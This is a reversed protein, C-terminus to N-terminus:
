EPDSQLSLPLGEATINQVPLVNWDFVSLAEQLDLPEEKKIFGCLYMIHGIIEERTYKSRLVGMDLDKNRKSLRRGDASVLHPVHYFQPVTFGLSEYLFKQQHTSSLLDCGRVVETVGMLADDTVVALQYSFAGDARRVIFDGSDRQLNQTQNGYHGDFFSDTRDPVHIRKSPKRSKSFEVKEEATLGYCTGAYVPVGDDTHPASSALLDARRCFCDYVLNMKELRSFEKEYFSDRESQFYPGEDWNLGLWKLDDMLIESYEKKCRQRDLDEIRLIWEGNKKRVSMWSMLCAYINGLHMRGSPSPAFRGRVNKM